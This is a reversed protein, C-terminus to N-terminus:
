LFMSNDTGILDDAHDHGTCSVVSVGETNSQGSKVVLAYRDRWRVVWVFMRYRQPKNWLTNKNEYLEWFLLSIIKRFLM